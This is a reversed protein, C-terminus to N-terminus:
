MSLELLCCVLDTNLYIIQVPAFCTLFNLCCHSRHPISTYDDNTFCAVFDSPLLWNKRM